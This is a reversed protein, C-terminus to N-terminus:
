MEALSGHNSHFTNQHLNQKLKFLEKYFYKLGAEFSFRPIFDVTPCLSADGVTHVSEDVRVKIKDLSKLSCHIFLSCSKAVCPCPSHLITQM